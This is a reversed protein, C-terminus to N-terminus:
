HSSGNGPMPPRGQEVRALRKQEVQATTQATQQALTGKVVEKQIEQQGHQLEAQAEMHRAQTDMQTAQVDAQTKERMAQIEEPSKGTQEPPQPPMQAIQDLVKDITDEMERGANFRRAVYKIMEAVLQGMPPAAQVVPLSQAIMGGVATIFETADQKDRMQDPEVTSDTEVDIRFQRLGENSLLGKVDEWSPKSMLQLKDQPVPPPPPQQPAQAQQPPAGPMGQPPQQQAAAQMAQVQQQYAQMQMGIQQKEMNTLLQINTMAKLTEISFKSAIIEAKLRLSDRAFRAVEKQKEKVRTSGNKQKIEQAGRTENPDTDGRMIDSIGTIQYVDDMLQKRAEFMGKLVVIVMDVPVWEVLGKIGGREAFAAWNDVPIMKNENNKSFLNAIKDDEHAAYIGVMRLADTLLGIRMTLEDVEEAQDRFYEYDPIPIISEPGCTAVMPMPCPFFDKLKLPDDRQDLPAVSYARSIWFVQREQKDWVEYVCAKNFQEANVKDDDGEPKWDLPVMDGISKGSQSQKTFREKLQDRTMYAKFYVFRIESPERAANTGFDLYNIHDCIVSEWTVQEAPTESQDGEEGAEYEEAEVVNTVSEGEEDAPEITPVYRVRTQGRGVLLYDNRALKLIGDFDYADGAYILARELVESAVRGVPDEDKFRRLVVPIPPKAYVTPKLTEQNAWLVAYRRKSGSVQGKQETYRAVIKECKDRWPKMYREALELESIWRGALGRDGEGFVETDDVGQNAVGDVL